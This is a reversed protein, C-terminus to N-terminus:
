PIEIEQLIIMDDPLPQGNSDVAPLRQGSVPDYLGTVLRYKGPSLTEPPPPTLELSDVVVEGPQWRSTPYQGALPPSDWGAIWRGQQDLLQVFVTYDTSAADIAQWHLRISWTRDGAEVLSLSYGLFRLHDGLQVPQSIEPLRPDRDDDTVYFLGLVLYDGSFQGGATYIPM